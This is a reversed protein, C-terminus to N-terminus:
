GYTRSDIIPGDSGLYGFKIAGISKTILSHISQDHRHDIFAESQNKWSADTILQYNKKLVEGFAMLYKNFHVTKKFFCFTLCLQESKKMYESNTYNFYDFLEQKTYQEERWGTGFALISHSSNALIDAYQKIFPGGKPHFSSGAYVLIDNDNMAEYLKTFIYYKWIWYGGGKSHKLIDSFQMRFEPSLREPTFLSVSEFIGLKEAERSIRERSKVYKKDGYTAFHISYALYLNLNTAVFILIGVIKM